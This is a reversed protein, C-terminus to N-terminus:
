GHTSRRSQSAMESSLSLDELTGANEDSDIVLRGRGGLEIGKFSWDEM